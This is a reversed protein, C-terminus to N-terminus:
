FTGGDIVDSFVLTGDSKTGFVHALEVSEETTVAGVEGANEFLVGVGDANTGNFSALKPNTIIGNTGDDEFKISSELRGSGNAVVLKNETLDTAAAQEPLRYHTGGGIGNSAQGAKWYNGTADWLLSGTEGGPAERVLIGGDGAANDTNLEIIRDGINVVTSDITTTTGEVTLNGAVVVGTDVVTLRAQNNTKIQVGGAVSFDIIDDGTESGIVLSNHKISTITTQTPDIDISVPSSGDFSFNSIGDGDTLANSTTGSNGQLTLINSANTAIDAALSASTADFAGSIASAGDVSFDTLGNEDITIVGTVTQFAPDAGTAGILLQGNTGVTLATIADTGSGVLVGGDTLSTAGTGGNGVSLTQDLNNIDISGTNVSIGTNAVTITNNTAQVLFKGASTTIGDGALSGSDVSITASSGGDFTFDIIGPGDTLTGATSAAIDLEQNGAADLRYFKNNDTDFYLIGNLKANSPTGPVGSGTVVGALPTKWSTGDNALLVSFAEPFNNIGNASGTVLALEGANNGTLSAISGIGGRKIKITQAM